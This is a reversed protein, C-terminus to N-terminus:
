VSYYTQFLNQNQNIDFHIRKAFDLKFRLHILDSDIFEIM